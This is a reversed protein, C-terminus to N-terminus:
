AIRNRIPEGSFHRVLNQVVERGMARRTEVTASGIHPTLVVGPHSIMAAPLHPEQEYVDLGAAGLRGDLLARTM